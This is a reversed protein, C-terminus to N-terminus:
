YFIMQMLFLLLKLCQFMDDTMDETSAVTQTKCDYDYMSDKFLNLMVKTPIFNVCCIKKVRCHLKIRILAVLMNMLMRNRLKTKTTNM